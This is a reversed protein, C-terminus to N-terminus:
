PTIRGAFKTRMPDGYPDNGLVIFNDPGGVEALLRATRVCDAESQAHKDADHLHVSVWSALLKLKRADLERRLTNPETPMFGWDGLETGAYGTEHMEDIVRAYGDREGEVNEIVGWSCPANAVKIVM